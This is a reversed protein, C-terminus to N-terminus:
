TFTASEIDRCAIDISNRISTPDGVYGPLAEEARRRLENSTILGSKALALINERDIEAFRSLKSVAVDVPSFVFVTVGELGDLPLRMADHHANEHMLM